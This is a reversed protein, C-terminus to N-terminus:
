KLYTFTVKATSPILGMLHDIYNSITLLTDRNSSSTSIVKLKVVCITGTSGKPIAPSSGSFGGIKVRGGTIENGDVAAWGSTLSGSDVRQFDFISADFTLDLGFVSIENLNGKITVPVSVITGTGGSNPSCSVSIKNDTPPTGLELAVAITQPSNTAQSDAVTIVGAYVGDSMGQSNVAVLHSIDQGTSQGSMPSVSLWGADKAVTYKLTGGGTNRIRLIKAVPDPGGATGSFGLNKTSVWISPPPNKDINLHISMECPTNTANPDQIKIRCEYTGTKMAGINVAVQHTKPAGESSGSKPQVDLWGSDCSLQYNLTGQGSNRIQINQSPPNNGGEQTNFVLAQVSAWIKPPPKKAVKLNVQIEQPNNYAQTSQIVIKAEHNEEEGALKNRDVTVAHEVTEGSSSGGSPSVQIWDADVDLSYELTYPGANKIQLTQPAPNGAQVFASFALEFTNVWIVPRTADSIEPATPSKKCGVAGVLGILLPVILTIRLLKNAFM